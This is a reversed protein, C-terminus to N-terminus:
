WATRPESPTLTSRIIGFRGVQDYNRLAGGNPLEALFKWGIHANCQACSVDGVEMDGQRCKEVRVRSVKFSGRRLRKVFFAPQGEHSGGWSHDWELYADFDTLRSSSLVHEWQLIDAVDFLANSCGTCRVADRPALLQGSLSRKRSYLDVLELFEAHVFARGDKRFGVFVGCGGCRLARVARTEEPFPFRVGAYMTRALHQLVHFNAAGRRSDVTLGLEAYELPEYEAEAELLQESSTSSNTSTTSLAALEATPARPRVELFVRRPRSNPVGLLESPPFLQKTCNVCRFMRYIHPFVANYMEKCTTLLAAQDRQPLSAVIKDRIDRPMDLLGVARSTM